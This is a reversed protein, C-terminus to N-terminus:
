DNPIGELMQLIKEAEASTLSDVKVPKCIVSAAYKAEIEDIPIGAMVDKLLIKLNEPSMRWLWGNIEVYVFSSDRDDQITVRKSKSSFVLVGDIRASVKAGTEDILINLHEGICNM